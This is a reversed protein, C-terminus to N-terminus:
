LNSHPSGTNKKKFTNTEGYLRQVFHFTYHLTCCDQLFRVVGKIKGSRQQVDCTREREGGGGGLKCNREKNGSGRNLRNM